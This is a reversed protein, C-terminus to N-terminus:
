RVRAKASFVGLKLRFQKSEEDPRSVFTVHMTGVDTKHLLPVLELLSGEKRAHRTRPCRPLTTPAECGNDDHSAIRCLVM